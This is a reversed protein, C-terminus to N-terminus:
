RLTCRPLHGDCQTMWSMGKKERRLECFPGASWFDKCHDGAVHYFQASPSPFLCASLSDRHMEQVAPREHLAKTSLLKGNVSPLQSAYRHCDAILQCLLRQNQSPLQHDVSLNNKVVPPRRNVAQPPCNRALPQGTVQVTFHLDRQCVLSVVMVLNCIHKGGKGREGRNVPHWVAASCRTVM